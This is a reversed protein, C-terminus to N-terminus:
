TVRPLFRTEQTNATFILKTLLLKQMTSRTGTYTHTSLFSRRQLCREEFVPEWNFWLLHSPQHREGIRLRQLFGQLFILFLYSENDCIVSENDCIPFENCYIVTTRGGGQGTPWPMSLKEIHLYLASCIHAFSHTTYFLLQTASTDGSSLLYM